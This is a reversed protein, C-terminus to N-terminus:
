KSFIREWGLLVPSAIYISSYTGVFIGFLLVLAFDNIVDGGLIYLALVAFLTTLSTLLTRSISQSISKNIVEIFTQKSKVEINERIRDFIVITDNVSYGFITLFAAIVPINIELGMMGCFAVSLSIDHILAAIAGVSFKFEFRFTLYFTILVLAVVFLKVATKRLFDGIAPGVTEVSMFEINKFGKELITNLTQSSEASSRGELLKTAIIYENQEDKGIQQVLAPINNKNLESRIHSINVDKEFKAIIKVGGVFDIGWNLGGKIFISTIFLIFIAFSLGIAIFRYNLFGIVREM